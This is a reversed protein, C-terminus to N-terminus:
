RAVANVEVEEREGIIVKGSVQFAPANTRRADLKGGVVVEKELGLSNTVLHGTVENNAALSGKFVLPLNLTRNTGVVQFSYSQNGQTLADSVQSAAAV